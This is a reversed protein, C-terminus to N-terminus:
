AAGLQNYWAEVEPKKYYVAGARHGNQKIPKPFGERKKWEFFTSKKLGLIDMLTKQPIIAGCNEFTTM